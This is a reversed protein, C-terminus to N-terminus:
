YLQGTRIIFAYSPTFTCSLENKVEPSFPSSRNTEPWPRNVELSLVAAMWQFPPLLSWNPACFFRKGTGPISDLLWRWFKFMFGRMLELPCGTLTTYHFLRQKNEFGCLVCLTFQIYLGLGYRATFM